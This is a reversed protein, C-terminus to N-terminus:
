WTLVTNNKGKRVQYWVQDLSEYYKTDYPEDNVYQKWTHEHLWEELCDYALPQYDYFFKNAYMGIDKVAKSIDPLGFICIFRVFMGNCKRLYVGNGREWNKYRM